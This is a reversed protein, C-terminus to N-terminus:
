STSAARSRTVPTSLRLLCVGSLRRVRAALVMRSRSLFWVMWCIRPNSMVSSSRRLASACRRPSRCVLGAMFFSSRTRALSCRAPCRIVRGRLRLASGIM